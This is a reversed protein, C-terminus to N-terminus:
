VPDYKKAKKGLKELEYKASKIKALYANRIKAKKSKKRLKRLRKIEKEIPEMKKEIARRKKHRELMHSDLFVDMEGCFSILKNIRDQLHKAEMLMQQRFEESYKIMEKLTGKVNEYKVPVKAPGM